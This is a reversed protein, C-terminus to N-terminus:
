RHMAEANCDPQTARTGLQRLGRAVEGHAHHALHRRDAHPPVHTACRTVRVELGREGLVARLCDVLTLDGVYAPALSRRGHEDFYALALSHVAVNADIAAQFLAGHFPLVGDGISTTGEPFIALRHGARLSDVMQRQTQHAARRSGRAIFVTETHRCLWGVLPWDAIEAKAVFGAPSLANIVFIDVFSVHNCVLLGDTCEAFRDADAVIRIGLRTLFQRSWRRKLGRRAPLGLFPYLLAVQVAGALLHVVVALLRLAIKM